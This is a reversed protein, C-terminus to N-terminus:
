CGFPVTINQAVGMEFLDYRIIVQGTVELQRDFIIANHIDLTVYFRVVVNQEPAVWIEGPSAMTISGGESARITPLVLDDNTFSYQWAEMGLNGNIVAHVGTPQANTVGGILGGASLDAASAADEGANTLCVDNRVLFADPGLRVAEFAANEEQGILEGTTELVVRRASGLQNFWVEASAAADTERAVSTFSGDFALTVEYRWGALLNLNADIQPFSVTSFGTPPANQTLFFETPATVPNVVTPLQSPDTISGRDCAVLMLLCCLATIFAKPLPLVYRAGVRVDDSPIPQIQGQRSIASPPNRDKM